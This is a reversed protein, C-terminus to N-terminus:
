LNFVMVDLPESFQLYTPALPILLTHPLQDMLWMFIEKSAWRNSCFCIVTILGTIHDTYFFCSIYISSWDWVFWLCKFPNVQLSYRISRAGFYLVSDFSTIISKVMICRGDQTRSLPDSRVLLYDAFGCLKTCATKMESNCFLLSWSGARLIAHRDPRRRRIRHPRRAARRWRPGHAVCVCGAPRGAAWSAPAPAPQGFWTVTDEPLRNELGFYQIGTM